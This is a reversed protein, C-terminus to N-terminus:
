GTNENSKEVKTNISIIGKKSSNIEELLNIKLKEAKKLNGKTFYFAQFTDSKLESILSSLAQIRQQEHKIQVILNLEQAFLEGVHANCKKCVESHVSRLLSNVIKEYNKTYRQLQDYRKLSLIDEIAKETALIVLDEDKLHRNIELYKKQFEVIKQYSLIEKFGLGLLINKSTLVNIKSQQGWYNHYIFFIFFALIGLLVILIPAGM